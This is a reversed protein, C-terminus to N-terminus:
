AGEEAQTELKLSDPRMPMWYPADGDIHVFRGYHSDDKAFGIVRRGPFTVGNANTFTVRDGVKFDCPVPPVDSLENKIFDAESM